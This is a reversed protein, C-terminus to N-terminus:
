SITIEIKRPKKTGRLSKVMAEITRIYFGTVFFNLPVKKSNVKLEIKKM